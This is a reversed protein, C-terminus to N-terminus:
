GYAVQVGGQVFHIPFVATPFTSPFIIFHIFCGIKQKSYIIQNIKLVFYDGTLNKTCWFPSFAFDFHDNNQSFSAVHFNINRGSYPRSAVNVFEGWIYLSAGDYLRRSELKGWICVRGVKQTHYTCNTCPEHQNYKIMSRIHVRSQLYHDQDVFPTISWHWTYETM